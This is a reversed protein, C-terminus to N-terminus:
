SPVEESRYLINVQRRDVVEIRLFPDDDDISVHTDDHWCIDVTCGASLLELEAPLNATLIRFEGLTM